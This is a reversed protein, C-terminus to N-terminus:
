EINIVYSKHRTGTTILCAGLGDLEPRLNAFTDRDTQSREVTAHPHSHWDGLYRLQDATQISCISRYEKWGKTGLVLRNPYHKSDEPIFTDLIHITRRKENICGMLYGGTEKNGFCKTNVVIKSLLDEPIRVKWERADCEIDIFGPVTFRETFLSGEYDYDAFNLYLNEKGLSEINKLVSVALGCHPVVKNYGMQMTNSHCGEGIRVKDYTSNRENKLWSAIENSVGSGKNITERLIQYYYEQLLADGSRHIYLMGVKGKNSMCVRVITKDKCHEDLAYMLRSSASADIIIDYKNIADTRIVDLVDTDLIEIGPCDQLMYAFHEKMLSVKSKFSIGNSIIHRCVNHPKFGDNDCLTLKCIGSRYLLDSLSSGVAGAGFILIKKGTISEPSKSLWAAYRPTVLEILGVHEIKSEFNGSTLSSADFTYCITDVRSRKGVLRTPRLVSFSIFVRKINVHELLKQSLSEIDFAYGRNHLINTLEGITTPVDVYWDREVIDCGKSLNVALADMNYSPDEMHMRGVQKGDLVETDFYLSVSHDCGEILNDFDSNRFLVWQINDPIRFPEYEDKANLKILRDNAADDLWDVLTNVYERFSIESYWEDTDERSLCLSPPMGGHPYNIHPFKDFPFDLRDPYTVPPAGEPDSSSVEIMVPERFRLLSGTGADVELECCLGINANPLKVCYTGDYACKALIEYFFALQPIDKIDVKEFRDSFKDM